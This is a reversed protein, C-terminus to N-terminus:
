ECSFIAVHRDEERGPVVEVSEEDAMLEELQRHLATDELYRPIVLRYRQKGGPELDEILRSGCSCYRYEGDTYLFFMSEGGYVGPCDPCRWVFVMTQQELM